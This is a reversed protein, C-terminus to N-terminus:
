PEGYVISDIDTADWDGLDRPLTELEAIEAETLPKWAAEVLFQERRRLAFELSKSLLDTQSPEEGRARKWAAQLRKLVDKDSPRIRITTSRM